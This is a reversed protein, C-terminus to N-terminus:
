RKAGSRPPLITGANFLHVFLRPPLAKSGGSQQWVWFSLMGAAIVFQGTRSISALGSPLVGIRLMEAAVVAGIVLIASSIALSRYARTSIIAALGTALALLLPVPAEGFWSLAALGAALTIAAVCIAVVPTLETQPRNQEIGINSGSALFLWAKFLGHAVLHWLAAAYYGLGCSAIMFGMQSVTSAALAGKIDPRVSMVLIGWAAAFLGIAVAASQVLPAGELAPGFRILLFGGANVFGGHMLASVPTPTALSGILWTSFPPLACRAAAAIVLLSAITIAIDSHLHPLRGIATAISTTGTAQALLVFAAVLAADSLLFTRSCRAAAREAEDWNRVHGVLSVLVRGSLVWGLAFAVVDGSLVMSLMALAFAAVQVLFRNRGPDARLHRSAFAIITLAIFTTLSAAAWGVLDFLTGRHLMLALLLASAGLQMFAATGVKCSPLAENRM